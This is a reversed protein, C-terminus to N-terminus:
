FFGKIIKFNRETAGKNEEVIGRACFGLSTRLDKDRLLNDIGDFLKQENCVLIAAENKLFLEYVDKFNYIHYGSIIPKEFMAPEIPNHGGKNVLSGGVFVVTAIRYLSALEGITDLLLIPPLHFTSPPLYVEFRSGRVKFRSLRLPEFGITRVLREIEGVREIHRPAILLRLRPHGQLLQKYVKLIIAEEGPHTSGAVFLQETDKLYEQLTKTLETQPPAVIDFKMNGTIKIREEKVGLEELRLSYSETQMCFLSVRNLIPRLLRKIVKYGKLSSDSLRGNVLVIPVKKQWLAFIINPWLETECLIFLKPKIFGVVRRTIFSIDFPLYSICVDQAFVKKALSNGTKTVTTVILLYAPLNERMFDVLGKIAMVEGVSVAHIWIVPKATLGKRVESPFIGLRMLFGDLTFKGKILAYPLYVLGFLIFFLDYLLSNYSIRHVRIHNIM